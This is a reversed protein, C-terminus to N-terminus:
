KGGVADKAKWTGDIFKIERIGKDAVGGFGKSQFATGYGAIKKMTKLKKYGDSRNFNVINKLGDKYWQGADLGDIWETSKGYGKLIDNGTADNISDIKGKVSKLGNWASKGFSKLGGPSTLKHLGERTRSVLDTKLTRLGNPSLKSKASSMFNKAKEWGKSVTHNKRMFSIGNKALDVFSIVSCVTEVGDWIEAGQMSAKNKWKEDYIKDRWYDPLSNINGAMKGEAANGSWVCGLARVEHVLDVIKNIAGVIAGVFAASAVAATWLAGASFAAALATVAGVFAPFAVVAAVVAAVALVVTFAIKVINKGGECRYWYEIREGISKCGDVFRYGDALIKGWFTNKVIGTKENGAWVSLATLAAVVPNVRINHEDIYLTYSKELASVVAKDTQKAGNGDNVFGDLAGAYANYRERKQELERIKQNAYVNAQATYPSEGLKIDGLKRTVKKQIEDAYDECRKATKEAAKKANMIESYDLALEAM